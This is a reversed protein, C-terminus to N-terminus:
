PTAKKISSIGVQQRREDGSSDLAENTLMQTQACDMTDNFDSLLDIYLSKVLNQDGLGNTITMLTIYHICYRVELREEENFKSANSTTGLLERKWQTISLLCTSSKRKKKRALFQICFAHSFDKFFSISQLALNDFLEKSTKKWLYYHSISTYFLVHHEM